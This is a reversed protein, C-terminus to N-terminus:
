REPPGFTRADLPGAQSLMTTSADTIQAAGNGGFM